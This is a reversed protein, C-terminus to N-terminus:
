SSVEQGEVAGSEVRGRGSVATRIRELQRRQVPDHGAHRKIMHGLSERGRESHRGSRELEEPSFSALFDARSM